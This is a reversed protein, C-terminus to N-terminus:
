SWLDQESFVNTDQLLFSLHRNGADKVFNSFRIDVREDNIGDAIFTVKQYQHAKFEFQHIPMERVCVSMKLDVPSTGGFYLITGSSRKKPPIMLTPEIWNDPWFGAISVISTNLRALPPFERVGRIKPFIGALRFFAKKACYSVVHSVSYDARQSWKYHLWHLNANWGPFQRLVCGVLGKKEYLLYHWYGKYYSLHVRGAHKRCTKFIEKFIKSRASLTKTEAYLRSCALKDSLFRIDGNAKGIRLWYDYDMTYNLDEDFSGVKEAIRRKWFTAPQCVMCDELLRNLSYDATKYSGIVQDNEDIYDANGYVMDCDPNGHFFRVVQEIAGPVLVDDSNLYALIDGKARAMGKNIAHSQGHDKESVWHFHDGYSRLIDISEDDSGGDMVLYEINPYSQTLVSEITRKLFRGQNYSPTVVSVLPLLEPLEPLLASSSVGRAVVRDCAAIFNHASKEWSYLDLRFKGRQILDMPLKDDILIREMLEAMAEVDRPDCALVADGGVEPLSTTNSCLVPTGADFAELLPIGFGEYLSFFVLARAREFLVRLLEPRVFGLHTVDQLTSYENSLESWGNPHGTLVLSINLETKKKLLDFAQLLRSHNKHKWINAPFLFFDGRPIMVKESDNLGAEGNGSRHVVQLSPEMLFIDKCRTEPFNLLETRAFDSITGIAGGSGLAKAFAMRRSGLVEKSFFEPYTEHQIDPILFIQKNLPFRVTDEIPYTRFLLDLGEQTAIQDLDNFYSSVSLSFYRVHVEEYELLSRNFPTCFVFFQHEPYAAFVHECVGKVLQSIGGSIGLTLQRLDIGIKM